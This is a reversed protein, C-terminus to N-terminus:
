KANRLNFLTLWSIFNGTGIILHPFSLPSRQTEHLDKKSNLSFFGNKCRTHAKVLDSTNNGLKRKWNKPENWNEGGSTRETEADAAGPIRGHTLEALDPAAEKKTKRSQRRASPRGQIQAWLNEQRNLGDRTEKQEENKLARNMKRWGFQDQVRRDTHSSKWQESDGAPQGEHQFCSTVPTDTGASRRRTRGMNETLWSKTKKELKKSRPWTFVARTKWKHDQRRLLTQNEWETKTALKKGDNPSLLVQHRQKAISGGAAKIEM